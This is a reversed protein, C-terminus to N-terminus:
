KCNIQIFNLSQVKVINLFCKEKDFCEWFWSSNLGFQVFSPQIYFQKYISSIIEMVDSRVYYFKIKSILSAKLSKLPPPTFHHKGMEFKSGVWKLGRFYFFYMLNGGEFSWSVRRKVRRLFAKVDNFAQIRNLCIELKKWM